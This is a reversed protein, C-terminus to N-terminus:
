SRPGKLKLRDVLSKIERVYPSCEVIFQEARHLAVARRLISEDPAPCTGSEVMAKHRRVIGSAEISLAAFMDRMTVKPVPWDAPWNPPVDSM